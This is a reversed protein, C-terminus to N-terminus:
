LSPTLEMKVGDDEGGKGGLGSSHSRGITCM